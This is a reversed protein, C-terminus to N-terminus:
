ARGCAWRIGRLLVTRFSEDDYALHDHGSLYCFVRSNRYRRTWAIQKVGSPDDTTILVSNGPQDPEGISYTEDVLTFSQLEKTIPHGTMQPFQRVSQLPHYRFHDGGRNSLGCVDTYLPWGQFSLMAHHLLVIGQSSAGLETEMYARLPTAAAPEDWNMSYWVVVDYACRNKEDRVFLDLPQVYCACDEFSDLMRQFGVVDYPHNEVVVAVKIKGQM